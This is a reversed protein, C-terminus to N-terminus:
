VTVAVVRGNLHPRATRVQFVRLLWNGNEPNASFAVTSPLLLPSKFEVEATLRDPLRGELAALCRAKLWMGHAIARPFGFLRAVLPNMHIPNVDGSVAAYRRGVDRPVRWVATPRLGRDRGDGSAPSPGPVAPKRSKERRLYTSVETWVPEKGITVETVMDFQRGRPHDRLNAAHVCVTLREDARLTRQQTIRNNVHVLGPLAFPFAPDVMLMVAAPFGLIHAYTPPLADSQRFGCVDAYGALKTRDVELDPLEYSVEPLRDSHRGRATIAARAYLRGLRPPQELRRVTM